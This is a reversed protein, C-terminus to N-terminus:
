LVDNQQLLMTLRKHVSLAKAMRAIKRQANLFKFSAADRASKLATRRGGMATLSCLYDPRGSMTQTKELERRKLEDQLMTAIVSRLGLIYQLKACEGCVAGATTTTLLCTPVGFSGNASANWPCPSFGYSHIRWPYETAFDMHQNEVPRYHM